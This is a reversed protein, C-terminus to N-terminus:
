KCCRNECDACRALTFVAVFEVKEDCKNKARFHLFDTPCWRNLFKSLNHKPMFLIGSEVIKYFGLHGCIFIEDHVCKINDGCYEIEITENDSCCKASATFYQIKDPCVYIIKNKNEITVELDCNIKMNPVCCDNGSFEEFEREENSM